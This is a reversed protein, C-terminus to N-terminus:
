GERLEDLLRVLLGGLTAREGPQLVAMADRDLATAIAVAPGELAAARATLRIIQARHDQAHPHRTILGDREMRKLTAAMTAQEVGVREILDRQTMPTGTPACAGWLEQLVLFQAPALGIPRLREALAATLIRAALAINSATRRGHHTNGPMTGDGMCLM